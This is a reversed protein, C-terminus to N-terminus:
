VRIVRGTRIKIGESIDAKGDGDVDLRTIIMNRHEMEDSEFGRAEQDFLDDKANSIDDMILRLTLFTSWKNLDTPEVFADITFPEADIDVYGNRRFFDLIEDQARRHYKKFSNRGNEVWKLIDSKYISLDNDSSFLHDGEESYLKIYETLSETDVGNQAEITIAKPLWRIIKGTVETENSFNTDEFGPKSSFGVIPLISNDSNSGENPLLSFSGSAVSITMKDDKDVTVTYTLTGAADMQTKIETALTALTYTGPTITATVEAGGSESFDLKNNTADFDGNWTDFQWDLFHNDNNSTDIVDVNSGDAGPMINMITLAASTKSVVTRSADLRTLDNIQLKEEVALNPFIAM